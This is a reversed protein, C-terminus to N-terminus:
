IRCQEYSQEYSTWLDRTIFVFFKLTSLGDSIFLNDVVSQEYSKM